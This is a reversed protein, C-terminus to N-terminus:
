RFPQGGGGGGDKRVLFIEIISDSISKFNSKVTRLRFSPLTERTRDSLATLRRRDFSITESHSRQDM